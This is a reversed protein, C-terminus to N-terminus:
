GDSGEAWKFVRQGRAARRKKPVNSKRNSCVPGIGAAKSAASRLRRGCARCRVEM